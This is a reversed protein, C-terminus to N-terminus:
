EGGIAKRLAEACDHETLSPGNDPGTKDYAELWARAAAEIRRLREIEDYVEYPKM